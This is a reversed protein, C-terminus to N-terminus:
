GAGLTIKIEHEGSAVLRDDGVSVADAFMRDGVTLRLEIAYDVGETEAEVVQAIQSLYVAEGFRWGAGDPGGSVPHLFAELNARVQAEVVAAADAVLPVIECVVSVAIYEPGTVRVQSAIAAPCRATVHALVQRRLEATPLPQPAPSNPAVILTVWGRRAFGADGTLPLADVRVGINDIRPEWTVLATEVRHRVLATTRANLPEFVLERLGAGFSRRMVREGLGTELILLVAQRIDEDHSVLAVDGSDDLRVPLAWGTGLFAREDIM